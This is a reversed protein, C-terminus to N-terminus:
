PKMTLLLIELKGVYFHLSYIRACLHMDDENEQDENKEKASIIKGESSIAKNHKLRDARSSESAENAEDAVGSCCLKCMWHFCPLLFPLISGLVIAANYLSTNAHAADEKRKKNEQDLKKKKDELTCIHSERFTYKENNSSYYREGM